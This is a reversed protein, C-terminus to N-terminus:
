RIIFVKEDRESCPVLKINMSENECKVVNEIRVSTIDYFKPILKSYYKIITM